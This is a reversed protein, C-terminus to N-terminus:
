YRDWTKMTDLVYYAVRNESETRNPYSVFIRFTLGETSLDNKELLKCLKEQETVFTSFEEESIAADFEYTHNNVIVQNVIGQYFFGSGYPESVHQYVETYKYSHFQTAIMLVCGIVCIFGVVGAIKKRM